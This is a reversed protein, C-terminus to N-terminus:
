ISEPDCLWQTEADVRKAKLATMQMQLGAYTSKLQEIQYRLKGITAADEDNNRSLTRSLTSERERTATWNANIERQLQSIEMDIRDVAALATRNTCTKVLEARAAKSDAISQQVAAEQQDLAVFRNQYDCKVKQFEAALSERQARIEHIRDEDEISDMTARLAKRRAITAKFSDLDAVTLKLRRMEVFDVQEGRAFAFKMAHCALKDAEIAAAEQQRLLAGQDVPPITNVVEIPDLIAVDGVGDATVLNDNEFGHTMTTLGKYFAHSIEPPWLPM